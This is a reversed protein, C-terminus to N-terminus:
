ATGESVTGEPPFPFPVKGLTSGDANEHAFRQASVARLGAPHVHSCRSLDSLLLSQFPVWRVCLRDPTHSVLTVWRM